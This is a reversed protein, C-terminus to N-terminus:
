SFRDAAALKKEWFKRLQPPARPRGAGDGGGRFGPLRAAVFEHRM